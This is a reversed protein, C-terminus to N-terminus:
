GGGGDRRWASEELCEGGLVRRWAGAKSSVTGAVKAASYSIGYSITIMMTMATAEARLM